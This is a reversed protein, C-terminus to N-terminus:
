FSNFFIYYDYVLIQKEVSVTEVKWFLSKALRCFEAVKHSFQVQLTAMGIVLNYDYWPPPEMFNAGEMSPVNM